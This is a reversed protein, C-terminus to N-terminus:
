GGVHIILTGRGEIFEMNVMLSRGALSSLGCAPVGGGNRPGGGKTVGLEMM